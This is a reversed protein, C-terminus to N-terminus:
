SVRGPRIGRGTDVRPAGAAEAAPACGRDAVGAGHNTELGRVQGEIGAAPPVAVTGADEDGAGRGRAPFPHRLHGVIMPAVGRM